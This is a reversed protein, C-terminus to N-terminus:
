PKVGLHLQTGTLREIEIQYRHYSAATIVTELRADLLIRQSENWELLSFRGRKYGQEYDSVALEAQPIIQETLTQYATLAHLLEQYTEYLRSYLALRQQEHLLPDQQARYQMEDIYPQARSTSGLPISASILLAADGPANFHRVGASLALNARGRSQAHRLRAQALRKETAFRILDPNDALLTELQEFPPPVTLKFLAADATTFQPATSGWNSSLRVRSASLEHEAHELEISARALAIAQRRQEAIHSRGADVRKTVTELTRKVLALQDRSIQLRHQDVVAHIFQEAVKALLDLRQSDQQNLLLNARQQAVASRSSRKDGTELIKAVSLTTELQRTGSHEGSGAFDQLELKIELPRNQQAQKIRSIIAKAAYDNAGLQANNELVKIIAKDLTISGPATTEAAHAAPLTGLLLALPIWYRM